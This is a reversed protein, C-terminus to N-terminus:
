QIDGMKRLFKGIQEHHKQYNTEMKKAIEQFEPENRINDFMPNHKLANLALLNNSKNENLYKCAMDPEGMASYISALNINHMNFEPFYGFENHLYKISEDFLSDAFVPQGNQLYIYALGSNAFSEFTYPLPKIETEYKEIWMGASKYNKLYMYSRPVTWTINTSDIKIRKTWVNLVSDFNGATFHIAMLRDFYASSDNNQKLILASHKRSADFFGLLRLHQYISHHTWYNLDQRDELETQLQKYLFEIGQLYEGKQFILQGLNQYIRTSEINDSYELTLQYNELAKDFEGLDQYLRGLLVYAEASENDFHKARNAYYFASDLYNSEPSSDRTLGNFIWGLQVMPLIFTSDIELAKKFNVKAQTRLVYGDNNGFSLRILEMGQLYYNLAEFNETSLSYWKVDKPNITAKIESLLDSSIKIHLAAFDKMNKVEQEYQESSLYRDSNADLLKITLVVLDGYKQGSGEVIYKVNLERAIKPMSPHISRYREVTTRSRVVLDPINSLDNLITEMLGNIFYVNTTDKSEYHFPLVAISNELESPRFTLIKKIIFNYSALIVPILIAMSVIITTSWKKYNIIKNQHSLEIEKAESHKHTDGPPYGYYNHFCKTFYSVSQFGCDFATESITLSGQKLIEMAKKLRVQNIFQSVSKKTLKKVRLHLNSRSMGMERALESVGFQANTLNAETIATLRELFDANFPLGSM